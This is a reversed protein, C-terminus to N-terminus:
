SRCSRYSEHWLAITKVAAATDDEVWVAVYPRKAFGEQGFNIQLNIVLEFGEAPVNVLMPRAAAKSLKRGSASELLHWGLSCYKSGARTIILYDV